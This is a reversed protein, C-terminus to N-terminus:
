MMLIFLGGQVSRNQFGLRYLERGQDKEPIYVRQNPESTFYWDTFPVRDATKTLMDWMANIVANRYEEDDTLLCSWMQWDSKTYDSRSDLPLGYANIKTKYFKTETKAINKDFINLDLLKDWILNYKISWTDPKNFALKYHDKEFAAEKFKEAYERAKKIYDKGSKEDGMKELLKGWAAIALIAKISLNCNQALHGAFDDTCLQNEPNWGADTLYNAWETLQEKHKRAYSIDKKASCIAATCLIMNGCEEVPMQMDYRMERTKEEYGYDQGNALPYVGVDHPAFPYDWQKMSAYKFIPNLMGCVLDPNYMLFLPMSPYTVDVTGICANSYCEKSLFYVEGDYFVAKHAAVSQRYALSVIDTYKEGFASAKKLLENQFLIVKEFIDEYNELADKLLMDFTKGDRYCYAKVKEGFIEISYIDDYALCFFDAVSEEVTYEKICGVSPYGDKVVYEGSIECYTDGYILKKKETSDLSLLTHNPAALHLYGWDITINDGSKELINKEGRGCYVSLPTKFFEVSQEVSDTAAEASIDFYIKVKHPKKDKARVTYSIYSVPRSMLDLDNLTLPTMFTVELSIKENEFTYITQLPLIKVDTQRLIRPETYYLRENSEVKGMFRYWVGDISILGLMANRMGTWHRTNDDYLNDAFSWISFYPDVTVLPIAPARFKRM